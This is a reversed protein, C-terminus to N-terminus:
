LEEEMTDAPADNVDDAEAPMPEPPTELIERAQDALEEPVFIRQKGLGDVIVGYVAGVSERQIVAPIGQDELRGKILVAALEGQATAVEALPRQPDYPQWQPAEEVLPQGCDPCVETGIPHEQECDNCYPM